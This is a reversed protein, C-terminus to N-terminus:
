ATVSARLLQCQKRGSTRLDQKAAKVTTGTARIKRVEGDWDRFRAEARVTGAETSITSIDGAM